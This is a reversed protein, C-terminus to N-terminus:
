LIKRELLHSTFHAYSHNIANHLVRPLSPSYLEFYTVEPLSCVIGHSCPKGPDKTEYQKATMTYPKDIIVVVRPKSNVLNRESMKMWKVGDENIALGNVNSWRFIMRWGNGSILSKFHIETSGHCKISSQLEQGPNTDNQIM